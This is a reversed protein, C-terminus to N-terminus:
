DAGALWRRLRSWPSNLKKIEERISLTMADAAKSGSEILSKVQEFESWAVQGVPPKIVADATNLALRNLKNTAVTNTRIIIDVVNDLKKGEVFDASVDSAIVYDAGLDRAAQVPFNLCVSGDVLQMKGIEVPPMIGPIASSALVAQRIPGSTFVIERGSLLDVAACAFPLDSQKIDKEEVLEEVAVRLRESKLLSKRHAALNIIIRRKFERSLHQLLDEPEYSQNQRFRVGGLSQFKDSNIFKLFRQEVYTIDPNQAYVAGVLAGMSTGSVIDITINAKLLAKLVGIHALGRAGGGGLVIGTKLRM